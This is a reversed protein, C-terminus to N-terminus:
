GMLVEPDWLGEVGWLSKPTGYSEKLSKPDWLDRGGVSLLIQPGMAGGYPNQPGMVGGGWGMLVKPDWLGGKLIQPGM